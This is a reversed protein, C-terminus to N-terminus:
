CVPGGTLNPSVTRGRVRQLLSTDVSEFTIKGVEENFYPFQAHIEDKVNIWIGQLNLGSECRLVVTYRTPRFMFRNEGNCEKITGRTSQM